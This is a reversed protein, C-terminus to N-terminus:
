NEVDEASGAALEFQQSDLTLYPVALIIHVNLSHIHLTAAVNKDPWHGVPVLEIAEPFNGFGLSKSEVTPFCVISPFVAFNPFNMSITMHFFLTMM